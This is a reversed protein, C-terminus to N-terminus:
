DNDHEQIQKLQTYIQEYDMKEGAKAKDDKHDMLWQYQEPRNQELWLLFNLTSANSQHASLNPDFTHHSFCLCCSNKLDHRYKARTRGILHHANLGHTSGCVACKGVRRVIASWLEDCRKKWNIKRKKGM